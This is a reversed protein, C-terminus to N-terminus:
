DESKGFECGPAAYHYRGVGYADQRVVPRCRALWKRERAAAEQADDASPVLTISGDGSGITRWRTSCAITGYSGVCSSTRVSDAFASLMLLLSLVELASFAILLAIARRRGFRRTARALFGTLSLARM